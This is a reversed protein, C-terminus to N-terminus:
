GWIVLVIRVIVYTLIGIFISLAMGLVIVAKEPTGSNPALFPAFFSAIWTVFLGVSLIMAHQSPTLERRQIFYRLTGVTLVIGATAACIFYVTSM